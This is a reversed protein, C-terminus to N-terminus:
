SYLMYRALRQQVREIGDEGSQEEADTASSIEDAVRATFREVASRLALFGPHRALRGPGGAEPAQEVHRILDVLRGLQVALSSTPDRPRYYYLIPYHAIAHSAMVLSRSVNDMWGGWPELYRPDETYLADCAGGALHGDIELSLTALLAVQGYVSIVYSLAATILAFGSLAEVVALIRFTDLSPVIDGYGVTSASTGSFYLAQWWPNQLQGPSVLFTHMWPFYVLAYGVVLLTMWTLPTLVALLPAAFGLWSSRAPDQLRKGVICFMAWVSRNQWKNLPGGRAETHFVTRFVDVIVLLLILAGALPFLVKSISGDM